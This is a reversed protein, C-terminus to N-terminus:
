ADVALTHDQMELLALTREEISCEQSGLL